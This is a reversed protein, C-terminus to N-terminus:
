DVRISCDESKMQKPEQTRPIEPMNEPSLKITEFQYRFFQSNPDENYYRYETIKVEKM